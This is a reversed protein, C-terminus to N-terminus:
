KYNNYLYSSQANQNNLAQLAEQSKNALELLQESYIAFVEGAKTLTLRNGQRMLLCQGLDEELQSLRRSLTSKPQELAKAAATLSKHQCLAHFAKVASLDQM